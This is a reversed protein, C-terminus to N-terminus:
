LTATMSLTRSWRPRRRSPTGISSTLPLLSSRTVSWQLCGSRLKRTPRRFAAEPRETHRNQRAAAHGQPGHPLDGIAHQGERGARSLPASGHVSAGEVDETMQDPRGGGLHGAPGSMGRSRRSVGWAIPGPWSGPRGEWKTLFLNYELSGIRHKNVTKLTSVAPLVPLCPFGRNTSGVGTPLASPKGSIGCKAIAVQIHVELSRCSGASRVPLDVGTTPARGERVRGRPCDVVRRTPL